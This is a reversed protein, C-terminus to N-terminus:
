ETATDRADCAHDIVMHLTAAHSKFQEVRGPDDEGFEDSFANELDTLHQHLEDRDM